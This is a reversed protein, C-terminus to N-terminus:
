GAIYSLTRRNVRTRLLDLNKVGNRSGPQIRWVVYVINHAVCSVLKTMARRTFADAMVLYDMVLYYHDRFSGRYNRGRYLLCLGRVRRRAPRGASRKQPRAIRFDALDLSIASGSRSKSREDHGQDGYDAPQRGFWGDVDDSCYFYRHRQRCVQNETRHRHNESQKRPLRKGEFKLRADLRYLLRLRFLPARNHPM